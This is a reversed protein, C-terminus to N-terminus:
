PFTLIYEKMKAEWSCEFLGPGGCAQILQAPFAALDKKVERRLGNKSHCYKGGKSSDALAKKEVAVNAKSFPATTERLISQITDFSISVVKPYFHIMSGPTGCVVPCDPNPCGAPNTGNVQCKGHFYKNFLKYKLAPFVRTHYENQIASLYRTRYSSLPAANNYLDPSLKPSYGCQKTLAKAIDQDDERGLRFLASDVISSYNGIIANTIGQQCDAECASVMEPLALLFCLALVDQIRM